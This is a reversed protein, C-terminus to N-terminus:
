EVCVVDELTNSKGRDDFQSFLRIQVCKAGFKYRIESNISVCALVSESLKAQPNKKLLEDRIETDDSESLDILKTYISYTNNIKELHYKTAFKNQPENFIIEPLDVKKVIFISQGIPEYGCADMEIINFGKYLWESRSGSLGNVKLYSFYEINLGVSIIVYDSPHVNLKDIAPFVCEELLLYKKPRMLLLINTASYMFQMAVGQATISDANGYCMDQNEAFATKPLIDFRGEILISKYHDLKSGTYIKIYKDFIVHLIKNAEEQFRREKITSVPQERKLKNFKHEIQKKLNAILDSYKEKDNKIFWNQTAIIDLGLIKLINRKPPTFYEDIFFRLSGLEEKWRNLESLESPPNPMELRESIVYYEPLTYQRIFLIALYRKIWIKITEDSNVGYINPFWYRKTYHLFSYPPEKNLQMYRIIIQQMREPVLVYKPPEQQTYRMIERITAYKKMYMLLGGLAYHFELFDERETLRKEIKSQNTAKLNGSEIADYEPSVERMSFNFFQHAKRWYALVFEERNHSISQVILRWLCQYTEPSIMTGQYEDLFLDFFIGNNFHSVTKRKRNCLLENAEFIANYYEQPYVILQGKKNERFKSFANFYFEFLSRALSEDAKAISYFLIKSIVDFYFIKNTKNYTKELRKFLLEPVYYIYILHLVYLIIVTLTFASLSILIFASNNVIWYEKSLPPPPIQLLWVIYSIITIILIRIFWVCRWDKRFAEILKTSNYKEDIGRITQMLLPLGFAFISIIIPILAVSIIDPYKSYLNNM